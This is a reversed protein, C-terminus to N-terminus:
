SNKGCEATVLEGLPQKYERLIEGFIRVLEGRQPAPVNRWEKFAKASLAM